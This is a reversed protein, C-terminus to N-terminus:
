LQLRVHLLAATLTSSLCPPLCYRGSAPSPSLPCARPAPKACTGVQEQGPMGVVVQEGAHEESATLPKVRVAVTVSSSMTFVGAAVPKHRAGPPIHRAGLRVSRQVCPTNSSLVHALLRRIANASACQPM